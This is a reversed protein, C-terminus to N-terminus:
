KKRRRFFYFIKEGFISILIKRIRNKRWVKKLQRKKKKDFWSASYHHISYTNSTIETLGTEYNKPYFYESPFITLGGIEQYKNEIKIGRSKCINTLITPISIMKLANDKRFSYEKYYSFFNEFIKNGKECGMIGAAILKDDEFGSFSNVLLLNDISKLLEIDTDLYIGGFTVLAYLRVFDSVFAWKKEKYAEKTFEYANVDFNSEDWKIFEYDKCYKKWSRICRRELKPMPNNGFWCYHIIKPIM